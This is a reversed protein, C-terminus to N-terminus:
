IVIFVERTKPANMDRYFGIPRTVNSRSAAEIVKQLRIAAEEFKKVKIKKVAVDSGDFKSKGFQMDESLPHAELSYTEFINIFQM